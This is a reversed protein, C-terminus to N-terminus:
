RSKKKKEAHRKGVYCLLVLGWFATHIGLLDILVDLYHPSRGVSFFQIGEDTCAVIVSVVTSYWLRDKIFSYLPIGCFLLIGLVAYETFHALKRIFISSFHLPIGFRNLLNNLSYRVGESANSSTAADQASQSFIFFIWLVCLFVWLIRLLILRKKNSKRM